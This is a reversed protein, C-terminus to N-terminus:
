NYNSLVKLILTLFNSTNIDWVDLSSGIQHRLGSHFDTSSYLTWSFHSPVCQRVPQPLSSSVPSHLPYGTSKVSGRFMTYGANSGSIRV